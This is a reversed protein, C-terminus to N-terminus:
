PFPVVSRYRVVEGSMPIAEYNAAFGKANVTRDSHFIVTMNNSRSRLPKSPDPRRNHRDCFSEILVESGNTLTEWVDVYDCTCCDRELRFDKFM